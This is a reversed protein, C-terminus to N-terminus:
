ARSFGEVQRAIRDLTRQKLAAMAAQVHELAEANYHNAFPGAQFSALRDEVIALLHEQQVGNVGVEQIPGFQFCILALTDDLFVGVDGDDDRCVAKVVRYRHSAGGPGPEDHVVIGSTDQGAGKGEVRHATLERVIKM